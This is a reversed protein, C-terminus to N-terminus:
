IELLRYKKLFIIIIKLILNRTIPVKKFINNNNKINNNIDDKTDKIEEYVM